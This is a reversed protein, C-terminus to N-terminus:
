PDFNNRGCHCSWQERPLPESHELASPQAAGLNMESWGEVFSRSEAGERFRRPSKLRNGPASRSIAELWRETNDGRSDEQRVV